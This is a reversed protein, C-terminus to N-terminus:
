GAKNVLDSDSKLQVHLAVTCAFDQESAWCPRSGMWITSVKAEEICGPGEKKELSLQKACRRIWCPTKLFHTVYAKIRCVECLTHPFVSVQYSQFPFWTPNM